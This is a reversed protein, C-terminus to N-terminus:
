RPLPPTHRYEMVVVRRERHRIRDMAENLAAHAHALRAAHMLHYDRLPGAVTRALRYSDMAAAHTALLQAAIMAERASTPAIDKLGAIVAEASGRVDPDDPSVCARGAGQVLWGNFSDSQTGGAQAAEPGTIAIKVPPQPQSADAATASPRGVGRPSALEVIRGFEEIVRAQTAADMRILIVTKLCSQFVAKV